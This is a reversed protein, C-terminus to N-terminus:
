VFRFFKTMSKTGSFGADAAGNGGLVGSVIHQLAMATAPHKRPNRAISINFNMTEGIRGNGGSSACGRRSLTGEKISGQRALLRMLQQKFYFM